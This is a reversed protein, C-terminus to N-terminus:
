NRKNNNNGCFEATRTNEQQTCTERYSRIFTFCYCRLATPTPLAYVKSLLDFPIDAYTHTRFKIGWQASRHTRDLYEFSKDVRTTNCPM